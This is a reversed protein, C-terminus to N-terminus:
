LLFKLRIIIDHDIMQEFLVIMRGGKLRKLFSKTASAKQPQFITSGVTGGQEDFRATTQHTEARAPSPPPSVEDINTIETSRPSTPVIEDWKPQDEVGESGPRIEDMNPPDLVKRSPSHDLKLPSSVQGRSGTLVTEAIDSVSDGVKLLESPASSSNLILFISVILHIM